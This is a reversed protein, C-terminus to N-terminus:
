LLSVPANSELSGFTISRANLIRRRYEGPSLGVIKRFQRCFYSPDAFGCQGAIDKVALEPTSLLEKARWIRLNSLYSKPSCKEYQGFLRTFHFRSYGAIEALESVSLNWDLNAEAYQKVRELWTPQGDRSRVAITDEMLALAFEYALRSLEFPSNREYDPRLKLIRRLTQISGANPALPIVPGMSREIASLIRLVEVGNFCAYVFHWEGADSPVWYRHGHPIHVLMANGRGITYESDNHILRGSGSLTYQFVAFRASGRRTGDFDYDASTERSHGWATTMAHLSIHRRTHPSRCKVLPMDSMRDPFGYSADTLKPTM